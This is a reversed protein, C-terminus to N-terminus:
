VFIVFASIAALAIIMLLPFHTHKHSGNIEQAQQPCHSDRKTWIDSCNANDNNPYITSM